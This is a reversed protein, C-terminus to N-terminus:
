EDAAPRTRVAHKPPSQADLNLKQITAEELDIGSLEALDMTSILISALAQGFDVRTLAGELARKGEDPNGRELVIQTAGSVQTHIMALGVMMAPIDAADNPGRRGQRRANREAMQCLEGIYM